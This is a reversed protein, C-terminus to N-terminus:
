KWIYVLESGRGKKIRKNRKKKIKLGGEENLDERM